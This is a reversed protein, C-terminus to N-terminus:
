KRYYEQVYDLFLLKKVDIDNKIVGLERMESVMNNWSEIDSNIPQSNYAKYYPEAKKLLQTERNADIEPAVEKLIKIAENQNNLAYNWGEVVTKIFAKVMEPDKELTSRKCFYCPGKFLVGFNKPEILNYKVGQNDLTVTEDYVFVPHVDYKGEIFPKLDPSITIETVQKKDIGNKKLLSEFLLSTSGFPLMGVKKGIFDKPSTINEEIKSVFGGPSYYNIVGIIVLDAGKDNAAMIEDAALTGFTNEGTQVLTVPNLGPGGPECKLDLSNEKAFKKMGVVEGVFSASYIWGFRISAKYKIDNNQKKETCGYFAFFVLFLLITIKKMISQM